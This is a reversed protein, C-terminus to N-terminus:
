RKTRLITQPQTARRREIQDRTEQAATRILFACDMIEQSRTIKERTQACMEELADQIEKFKEIEIELKKDM